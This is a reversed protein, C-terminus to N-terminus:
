RHRTLYGPLPSARPSRLPIESTQKGTSDYYIVGSFDLPECKGGMLIDKQWVGGDGWREEEGHKKKQVFPLLAKSSINSLLKKPRALPSKPTMLEFNWDEDKVRKAAAAKPKVTFRTARTLLALVASITVLFANTQRKPSDSSAAVEVM